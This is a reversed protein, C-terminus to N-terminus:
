RGTRYGNNSIQKWESVNRKLRGVPSPRTCAEKSQAFCKEKVDSNQGWANQANIIRSEDKSDWVRRRCQKANSMRIM